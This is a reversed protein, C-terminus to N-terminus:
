VIFSSRQSVKGEYRHQKRHKMEQAARLHYLVTRVNLIRGETGEGVM